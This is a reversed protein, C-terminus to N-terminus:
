PNESEARKIFRTQFLQASGSCTQRAQALKDMQICLSGLGSVWLSPENILRAWFFSTKLSLENIYVLRAQIYEVLKLKINM